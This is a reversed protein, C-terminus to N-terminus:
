REEPQLKAQARQIIGDMATRTLELWDYEEHLEFSRKFFEKSEEEFTSYSLKILEKLHKKDVRCIDGPHEGPWKSVSYTSKLRFPGLYDKYHCWEETVIALGGTALMQFPILAYGEGAAAYLLVDHNHFLEVMQEDSYTGVIVEVNPLDAPNRFRGIEDTWRAMCRQRTKITLTAKSPDDGFVDRFADFSEQWGKRNAEADVILYRLPGQRKRLWPKWQSDIGHPYVKVPKKVGADIFIRKCWNSTTWVEDIKSDNIKDLWGTRLGSSEWPFFLVNYSGDIPKCLHPQMWHLQIEAKPNDLSMKYGLQAMSKFMSAAAIGYGVVKYDIPV